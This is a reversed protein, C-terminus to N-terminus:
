GNRREEFYSQLDNKIVGKQYQTSKAEQQSVQKNDPNRYHNYWDVTSSPKVTDVPLGLDRLSKNHWYALFEAGIATNYGPIPGDQQLYNNWDLEQRLVIGAMDSIEDHTIDGREILLKLIFKNTPVHIEHEEQSIRSLLQAFGNIPDDYAKNITFSVFFSFPFKINELLYTSLIALAINHNTPCEIMRDTVDIENDLRHKVIPDTHVIDIIAPAEHGFVQVLGDSYSTAHITETFAIQQYSLAVEPKNTLLALHNYIGVVGSDMLSQYGNTLKFMRKANDPLRQFGAYDKTFDVMNVTWFLALSSEWLRKLIPFEVYDTRLFTGGKGDGGFLPLSPQSDLTIISRM